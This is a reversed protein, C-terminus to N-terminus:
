GTLKGQLMFRNYGQADELSEFSRSWDLTYYDAKSGIEVHWGGAACECFQSRAMWVEVEEKSLSGTDFIARGHYKKCEGTILPM